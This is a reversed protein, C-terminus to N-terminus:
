DSGHKEGTAHHCCFYSDSRLVATPRGCCTSLGTDNLTNSNSGTLTNYTRYVIYRSDTRVFALRERNGSLRVDCLDYDGTDSVASFLVTGTVERSCTIGKLRFARNASPGTRSLGHCEKSGACLNTSGADNNRKVAFAATFSAFTTFAAFTLGDGQVYSVSLSSVQSLVACPM